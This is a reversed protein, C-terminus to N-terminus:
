DQRSVQFIEPIPVLMGCVKHGHLITAKMSAQCLIVAPESIVPCHSINVNEKHMESLKCVFRCFSTLLNEKNSLEGNM